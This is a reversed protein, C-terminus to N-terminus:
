RTETVCSLISIKRFSYKFWTAIINKLASNASINTLIWGFSIDSLESSVAWPSGWLPQAINQLLHACSSRKIKGGRLKVFYCSNESKRWLTNPLCSILTSCASYCTTRKHWGLISVFVSASSSFYLATLLNFWLTGILGNNWQKTRSSEQALRVTVLSRYKRHCLCWSVALRACGFQLGPIFLDSGLRSQAAYTLDLNQEDAMGSLQKAGAEVSRRETAVGAQAAPVRRQFICSSHLSLFVCFHTWLPPNNIIRWGTEQAPTDNIKSGKGVVEGYWM